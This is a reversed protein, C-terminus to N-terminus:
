VCNQTKDTVKEHKILIYNFYDQIDSVSCSGDHLKIEENWESRM